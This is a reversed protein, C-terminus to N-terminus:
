GSLAALLDPLLAQLARGRHSIRDKEQSPLEASTLQYGKPVFIPDYGFGNAGRPQRILQGAMVGEHVTEVGEPSVLAVACYFAAGLRDDPTDALQALLLNLNATDADPLKAGDPGVAAPGAWRASLVGPMGNLAEVALGSDDAVSLLGTHEAAARAKLLANDAFTAGTEPVEDFAPVQDLGLVQVSLRPQLIRSLEDLKHANRTALLLRAASM